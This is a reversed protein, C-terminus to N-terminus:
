TLIGDRIKRPLRQYVLQHSNQILREWEPSSLASVDSVHIWKYRALYPAPIIGERDTLEDFENPDVKLSVQVPPHTGTVCYMKKGVMYCLDNGWKVDIETGPIALCIQELLDHTM